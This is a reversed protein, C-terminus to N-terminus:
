LYRPSWGVGPVSKQDTVHLHRRSLHKNGIAICLNNALIILSLINHVVIALQQNVQQALERTPSLVLCRPVKKKGAKGGVKKRIHMLAPVGFAITKGPM